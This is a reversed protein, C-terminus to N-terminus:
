RIRCDQWGRLPYQHARAWGNQAALRVRDCFIQNGLEKHVITYAGDTITITYTGAPLAKYVGGEVGDVIYGEVIGVADDGITFSFTRTQGKGTAEYTPAVSTSSPQRPPHTPEATPVPPVPTSPRPPQTPPPPPTPSHPPVDPSAVPLTIVVTPNPPPAGAPASTNDACAQTLLLSVSLVSVILPKGTPKMAIEEM